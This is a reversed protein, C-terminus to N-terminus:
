RCVRRCIREGHRWQCDTWCRAPREDYYRPGGYGSRCHYMPVRQYICGGYYKQVHVHCEGEEPGIAPQRHCGHVKQVLASDSLVSPLDNLGSSPGAGAVGSLLVTLMVGLAAVLGNRIM